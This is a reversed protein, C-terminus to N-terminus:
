KNEKVVNQISLFRREFDSMKQAPQSKNNSSLKKKLHPAHINIFGSEILEINSKESKKEENAEPEILVKEYEQHLNPTTIEAFTTEDSNDSMIDAMIDKLSINPNLAENFDFLSDATQPINSAVNQVKQNGSKTPNSYFIDNLKTEIENETDVKREPKKGLGIDAVISQEGRKPRGRKRNVSSGIKQSFEQRLRNFREEVTENTIQKQQAKNLIFDRDSKTITAITNLRQVLEDLKNKADDLEKLIETFELEDEDFVERFKQQVVGSEGLKSSIELIENSLVQKLYKIKREYLVLARASSKEREKFEAIIKKDRASEKQLKSLKDNNEIASIENKTLEEISQTEFKKNM